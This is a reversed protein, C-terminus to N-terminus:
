MDLAPLKRSVPMFIPCARYAADAGRLYVYRRDLYLMRVNKDLYNTHM